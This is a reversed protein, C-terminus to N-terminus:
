GKFSLNSLSSLDDGVEAVCEEFSELSTVMEKLREKLESLNGHPLSDVLSDIQEKTRELFHLREQLREVIDEVENIWDLRNLLNGHSSNFADLSKVLKGRCISSECIIGGVSGLVLTVGCVICCNLRPFDNCSKEM